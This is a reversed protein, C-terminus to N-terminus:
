RRQVNLHHDHDVKEMTYVPNVLRGTVRPNLPGRYDPLGGILELIKARVEQQRAQARAKSSMAAEVAKERLTLQRQAIADMSQLLASRPPPQARLLLAAALFLVRRM